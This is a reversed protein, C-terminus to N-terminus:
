RKGWAGYKKEIKEVEFDEAFSEFDEKLIYRVKKEDNLYFKVVEGKRVLESLIKRVRQIKWKDSLYKELNVFNFQLTEDNKMYYILMDFTVPGYNDLVYKIAYIIQAKMTYFEATDIDISTLHYVKEKMKRRM